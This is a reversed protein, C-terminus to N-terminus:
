QAAGPSTFSFRSSPKLGFLHQLYPRDAERQVLLLADAEWDGLIVFHVKTADLQAFARRLDAEPQAIETFIWAGQLRRDPDASSLKKEISRFLIAPDHDPEPMEAAEPDRGFQQILDALRRKVDIVVERAAGPEIVWDVTTNGTGYGSREYATAISEPLFAVPRMEVLVEQHNRPESLRQFYLALEAPTLRLVAASLAHWLRDVPLWMHTGWLLERDLTVPEGFEYRWLGTMKDLFCGAGSLPAPLQAFIAEANAAAQGAAIAAANLRDKLTAVEAVMLPCIEEIKM